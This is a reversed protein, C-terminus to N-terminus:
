YEDKMAVLKKEESIGISQIESLMYISNVM